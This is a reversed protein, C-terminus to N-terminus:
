MSRLMAPILRTASNRYTDMASVRMLRTHAGTAPPPDDLDLSSRLWYMCVMDLITVFSFFRRHAVVEDCVEACEDMTVRWAM